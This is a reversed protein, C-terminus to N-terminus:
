SNGLYNRITALLEKHVPINGTVIEEGFLYNKGGNFDSVRGGAQQIIFAGAAIDWPNLGYEYFGDFRGCAVYALDVAASGLRRLGRSREMLIRFLQIYEEMKNYDCYPFGTALLANNLSTTASVQIERGNLRAKGDKWAYFCENHNIEFVVGAAIENAEMLAISIAFCPIGHIFNTTGDLPDVIWKFKEGHQTASGEETIFGAGPLIKNLGAILKEEAQIDVWTVYNHVGKTKVESSILNKRQTRIFEGSELSLECVDKCIQQYNVSSHTQTEM